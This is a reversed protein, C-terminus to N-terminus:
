LYTVVPSNNWIRRALCRGSTELGSMPNSIDKKQGEAPIPIQWEGFIM